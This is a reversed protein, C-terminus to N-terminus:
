KQMLGKNNESESSTSSSGARKLNRKNSINENDESESNTSSEESESNKSSDESESEDQKKECSRINHGYEGCYKCRNSRTKTKSLQQNVEISSLIRQAGRPRGKRKKAVPNKVEVINSQVNEKELVINNQHDVINSQANENDLVIDVHNQHSQYSIPMTISKKFNELLSTLQEDLDLEISKNVLTKALGFIKAYHQKEKLHSHVLEIERDSFSHSDNSSIPAWKTPFSHFSDNNSSGLRVFCRDSIDDNYVQDDMLIFVFHSIDSYKIHRVEWISIIQNHYEHMITSTRVQLLNFIEDLYSTECDVEEGEELAVYKASEKAYYLFSYNMQERIKNVIPMTVFTRIEINVNLFITNYINPASIFPM